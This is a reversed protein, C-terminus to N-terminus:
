ARRSRSHMPSRRVTKDGIVMYITGIELRHHIESTERLGLPLTIEGVLAEGSRDFIPNLKPMYTSSWM